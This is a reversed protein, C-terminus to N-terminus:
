YGYRGGGGDDTTTGGGETTAEGAGTTGVSSGAVTAATWTFTTGGFSDTFGDGTVQGPSDETFTYLPKGDFTVQETGDPRTVVALKSEVDPDDSGPQTGTDVTLPIWISACEGGCAIREGKDQDNTYLAAGDENVLVDGVGDISQVAVLNGSVGAATATGTDTAASEESGSDDDGCAALAVSLAIALVPIAVLTLVPRRQANV